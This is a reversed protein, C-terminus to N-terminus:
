LMLIVQVIAAVAGIVGAIGFIVGLVESSLRRRPEPYNLTLLQSPTSRTLRGSRIFFAMEVAIFCLSVIMAVDSLRPSEIRPINGVMLSIGWFALAVVGLGIGLWFSARSAKRRLEADVAELEHAKNRVDLLRQYAFSDRNKSLSKLSQGGARFTGEIRSADSYRLDFYILELREFERITKIQDPLASTAKTTTFGGSKWNFHISDPRVDPVLLGFVEALEDRTLQERKLDFDEELLPPPIM